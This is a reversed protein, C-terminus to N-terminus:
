VSGPTIYVNGTGSVGAVSIYTLGATYRAAGFGVVATSGPGIVIGRGNNGSTPVVAEVDADATGCNFVVVNATDANYVYFASAGPFGSSVETSDDTYALVISGGVPYFPTSM